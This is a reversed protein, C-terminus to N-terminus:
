AKVCVNEHKRSSHEVRLRPLEGRPTFLDCEADSCFAM